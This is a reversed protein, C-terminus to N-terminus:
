CSWMKPVGFRLQELLLCLAARLTSSGEAAFRVIILESVSTVACRCPLSGALDRLLDLKADGNPGFYILTGIANCAHLLATRRLQAFTEDTAHFCDAFILRGDKRVRWSDTIQGAVVHEGHAARGFVLWELGLVEAGSSLDIDTARSMRAGDFVITEQPLWALKATPCVNLKTVIWAPEKLARYVKEAAQTTVSIDAQPLATVTYELRDAGAIGGSTNVLVAEEGRRGDIRPFMIRVPSRQYLDTIRSGNQGDGIVVRGCGAARQLDRDSLGGIGRDVRASTTSTAAAREQM